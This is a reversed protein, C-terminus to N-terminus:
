FKSPFYKDGALWIKKTGLNKLNNIYNFYFMVISM